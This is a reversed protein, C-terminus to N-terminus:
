VVSKRDTIKLSVQNVLGDRNTVTFTVKKEDGSTAGPLAAYTYEYHDADSGSLDINYVSNSGAGNLNESIDFKKLVDKDETKEAEIAIWVTDGANKTVDASTLNAGTKFKIEPLKGEDDDEKDCATFVSVTAM